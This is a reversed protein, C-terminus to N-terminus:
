LSGLGQSEPSCVQSLRSHLWPGVARVGAAGGSVKVQLKVLHLRTSHVNLESISQELALDEDAWSSTLFLPCAPALVGCSSLSLLEPFGQKSAM